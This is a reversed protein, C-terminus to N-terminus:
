VFLDLQTDKGNRYGEKFGKDRGKNFSSECEKKVLHELYMWCQRNMYTMGGNAGEDFISNLNMRHIHCDKDKSM